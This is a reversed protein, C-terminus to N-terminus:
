ELGMNQRLAPVFRQISSGFNEKQNFCEAWLKCKQADTTWKARRPIKINELYWEDRSWYHNIQLASTPIEFTKRGLKYGDGTPGHVHDYSLVREPRIISKSNVHYNPASMTLTEIMLQNDPIQKVWSTGFMVWKGSIGGIGNQLEFQKLFEILTDVNKPVFFEDLDCVVLWKIQGTAKALADNYAGKQVELWETENSSKYFWEILEVEGNAVYPSLVAEYDDTSLNNYLYFHTAGLLKYYEIWEKLYPAEDQFIAVCALEHEYSTSESIAQQVESSNILNSLAGGMLIQSSLIFLICLKKM